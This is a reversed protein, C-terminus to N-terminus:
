RFRRTGAPSDRLDGGFAQKRHHQFETALIGHQHEFVGVDIDRRAARNPSRKHVRPLSAQRDLAAVHM